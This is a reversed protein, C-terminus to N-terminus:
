GAATIGKTFHYVSGDSCTHYDPEEIQKKIPAMTNDEEAIESDSIM